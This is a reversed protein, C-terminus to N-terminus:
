TFHDLISVIEDQNVQRSQPEEQLAHHFIPFGIDDSHSFVWLTRWGHAAIPTITLVYEVDSQSM